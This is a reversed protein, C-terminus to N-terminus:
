RIGEERLLQILFADREMKMDTVVQIADNCWREVSGGSARYRLMVTLSQLLLQDAIAGQSVEGKEFARAVIGNLLM